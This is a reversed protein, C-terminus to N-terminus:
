FLYLQVFTIPTLRLYIGLGNNKCQKAASNDADQLIKKADELNPLNNDRKKNEIVDLAYSKLIQSYLNKFLQSNAFLEFGVVNNAIAFIVGIANNPMTLHSEFDELLNEKNKYIDQMSESASYDQFSSFKNNIQEWTENQDATTDFSANINESFTQHMKEMKSFRGKAFMSSSRSAFERDTRSWRGRESCLVSLNIKCNEPVLTSVTMIRNQKLKEGTITQGDIIFVPFNNDNKFYLSPVSGEKSIEEVHLTNENIAQHFDKVDLNSNTGVIPFVTLNKYSLPTDIKLNQLTNDTKIQM